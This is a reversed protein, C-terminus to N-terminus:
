LQEGSIGGSLNRGCNFFFILLQSYVKKNFEVPDKSLGGVVDGYEKEFDAKDIQMFRANSKPAPVSGKIVEDM